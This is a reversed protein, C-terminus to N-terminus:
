ARSILVLGVTMSVLGAVKVLTVPEKLFLSGTVVSFVLLGMLILPLGISFQAGKYYMHAAFFTGFSWFGGSLIAMAIGRKTIILEMPTFHKVFALNLIGMVLAGIAVFPVSNVASIRDSLLKMLINYFSMFTISLIGATLWTM